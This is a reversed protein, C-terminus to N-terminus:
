QLHTLEGGNLREPHYEWPCLNMAAAVVIAQAHQMNQVDPVSLYLNRAVEDGDGGYDLQSCVWYGTEIASPADFVVLGFANLSGLYAVENASDAAAPTSLPLM